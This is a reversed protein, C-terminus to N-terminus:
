CLKTLQALRDRSAGVPLRRLKRRARGGYQQVLREASPLRSPKADSRLHTAMGLNEGFGALARVQEPNAGGLVAGIRCAAPLVATKLKAIRLYEAPAHASDGALALALDAGLSAQVGAEAQIRTAEAVQDATAGRDRCEEILGFGRFHLSNAAVIAREPGFRRHVAVRGHRVDDHGMLGAHVLSGVHLCEVGIAAPLVRHLDGGVALAARLVLLSRLLSGVPILAYRDVADLAKPSDPWRAAFEDRLLERLDDDNPSLPPVHRAAEDM